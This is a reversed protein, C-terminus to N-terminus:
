GGTRYMDTCRCNATEHVGMSPDGTYMLGNSYAQDIPIWGEATARSHSDRVEGDGADLWHKENLVKTQKAAEHQGFGAATHVETRAILFSRSRDLPLEGKGQWDGYVTRVRKAIESTSEGSEM